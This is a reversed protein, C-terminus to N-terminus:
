LFRSLDRDMALTDVKDKLGNLLAEPAVFPVHEIWDSTDSAPDELCVAYSILAAESETLRDLATTLLPHITKEFAPRLEPTPGEQVEYSYEDWFTRFDVGWIGSAAIRRAAHQVTAALRSLREEALGAIALDLGRILGALEDDSLDLDAWHM